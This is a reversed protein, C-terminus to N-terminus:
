QLIMLFVFLLGKNWIGFCFGEFSEGISKRHDESLIGVGPTLRKNRQQGM